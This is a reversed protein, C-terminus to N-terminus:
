IEFNVERNRSTATETQVGNRDSVASKHVPDVQRNVQMDEAVRPDPWHSTVERNVRQCLM